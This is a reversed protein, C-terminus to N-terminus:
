RGSYASQSNTMFFAEMSRAQTNAGVHAKVAARICRDTTLVCNSGGCTGLDSSAADSRQVQGAATKKMEFCRLGGGTWQFQDVRDDAGAM